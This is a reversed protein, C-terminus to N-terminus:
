ICNEQLKDMNIRKQELSSHVYRNLTINVNSHGLIESLTKVEFGVEICHTAFRHRLDHFHIESIGCKRLVNKFHRRLEAPEAYEKEAPIITQEPNQKVKSLIRCLFSPLPIVRASAETKPSGVLLVTSGNNNSIRQVTRNVTITEQVENYDSWKLGCVEGIRMGTYLSLLIGINFPNDSKTLTEALTQQETKELVKMETKEVKLGRTHNIKNQIGYEQECFNAVSKVISLIDQLYKKSIGGKQKLRGSTLKEVTFDNIMGCNLRRMDIDKFYPYIHKNLLYIYNEYTSRKVHLKTYGLWKEAAVSFKIQHYSKIRNYKKSM